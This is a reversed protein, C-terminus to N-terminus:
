TLYGGHHPMPIAGRPGCAAIYPLLKAFDNVRDPTLKRKGKLVLSVLTPSCRRTGPLGKRISYGPVSARNWRYIAQLFDAVVEYNTISPRM